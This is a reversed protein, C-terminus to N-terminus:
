KLAGEPTGVHDPEWDAPRRIVWESINGTAHRKHFREPLQKELRSLHRGILSAGGWQYRKRAESGYHSSDDLLKELLETAPGHWEYQDVGILVVADVMDLLRGEAEMGLMSEAVEPHCFPAIGWRSGKHTQPIEWETLAHCFAPLEALVAAEREARSADAMVMPFARCKTVILKDKISEEQMPPLMKLNEPDDNVSITVRWFPKLMIPNAGKGHCRQGEASATFNKIKVGFSRRAKNDTSRQEDDIMLHESGFLDSNFPTGETMFQYPRASRGGLMVTIIKQLFSKGIDSPGTLVLAQGPNNEGDKTSKILSEYSWKLWGMVHTIQDIDDDSNEFLGSLIKHILPWKGEVANILTPESTILVRHGDFEHIGCMRGALAGSYDVDHENILEMMYEEADSTLEHQDPKAKYGQGRLHRKFQAEGLPAYVGRANKLLYARKFNDYHAIPEQSKPSPRENPKINELDKRTGGAAIWDAPDKVTHGNRDPLEIVHVSETNGILSEMVTDAHKRGPTDKDAIVVVKAGTLSETYEPKWKGAGGSNCTAFLGLGALADCDKEGEAVYVVRGESITDAMAPLRYLTRTTGNLNWLWRGPKEPDPRRQRFDKPEMRCVQFLLTGAADAYDYTEVIRGRKRQARQPEPEMGALKALAEIAKRKDTGNLASHLDIVDGKQDCGHCCFALTDHCLGFSPNDDDHGPLPCSIDKGNWDIGHQQLVDACTVRDKIGQVDYKM